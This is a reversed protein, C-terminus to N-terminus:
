QYNLQNSPALRKYPQSQQCYEMLQNVTCQRVCCDCYLGNDVQGDDWLAEFAHMSRKSSKLFTGLPSLKGAAATSQQYVADNDIFDRNSMVFSEDIAAADESSSTAADFNQLRQPQLGNTSSRKNYRGNCMASILRTLQPGCVGRPLLKEEPTCAMSSKIHSGDVVSSPQLYAVVVVVGVALLWPLSAVRESRRVGSRTATASM